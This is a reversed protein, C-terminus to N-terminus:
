ILDDVKCKLVTAIKNLNDYSPKRIEQEYANISSVSLGVKAALEKSTLGRKLRLKKLNKM